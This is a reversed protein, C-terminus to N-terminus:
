DFDYESDISEYVVSGNWTIQFSPHEFSFVYMGDKSPDVEDVEEYPYRGNKMCSFLYYANKDFEEFNEDLSELVSELNDGYWDRIDYGGFYIKKM